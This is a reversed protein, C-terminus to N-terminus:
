QEKVGLLAAKLELTLRQQIQDRLRVEAQSKTAGSVKLPWREDVLLKDSRNDRLIVELSGRFWYWGDVQGLDKVDLDGELRYAADGQAPTMGAAAIGAQLYKRLQATSDAGPDGLARANVRMRKLQQDIDNDLQQVTWLPRIGVGAPDVIRLDRQLSERSVQATRAQFLLRAARFPDAGGQAEGILTQSHQDYKRIEASLRNSVADRELVALSYYLGVGDDFWSEAIRAGELLKSTYADLYRAALQENGQKREGEVTRTWASSADHASEEIQVEFIKALNSLARNRAKEQDDGSGTATMFESEPYEKAKGDVWRPKGGMGSCGALLAVALAPAAFSLARTKAEIYRM